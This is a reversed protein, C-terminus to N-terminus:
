GGEDFGSVLEGHFEGAEVSDGFGQRLQGFDDAEFGIHGLRV